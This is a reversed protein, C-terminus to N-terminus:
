NSNLVKEYIRNCTDQDIEINNWIEQAKIAQGVLMYLGNIVKLGKERGYKLFITEQPNYILDIATHYNLLYDKSVPSKDIHPFMGCPTTNIIIDYAKLSQIQDYDIVQHDKYKEKAKLSDRSVISIKGIGWDILYQVVARSAGGSGLIVAKKNIISIGEKNLLMGFGHYDTNYGKAKGKEFAITNIANLAQGEQSLEDLYKIIEVKYPITVNLGDVGSEKLEDLRGGLDRKECEFLKYNGRIKLESLINEHIVPSFSHGLKEGLLGFEKM